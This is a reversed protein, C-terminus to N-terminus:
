EPGYCVRCLRQRQVGAGAGRRGHRRSADDLSALKLSESTQKNTQKAVVRFRHERIEGDEKNKM